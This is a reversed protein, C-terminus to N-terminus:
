LIGPVFLRSGNLGNKTECRDPASSGAREFFRALCAVLLSHEMVQDLQGVQRTALVLSAMWM